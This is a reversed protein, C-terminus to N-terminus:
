DGVALAILFRALAARPSDPRLTSSITLCAPCALLAGGASDRVLVVRPAHTCTARRRALAPSLERSAAAGIRALLARTRARQRPDPFYHRLVLEGFTASM